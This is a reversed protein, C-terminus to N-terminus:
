KRHRRKIRQVGDAKFAYAEKDALKRNEADEPDAKEILSEDVYTKVPAFNMLIYNNALQEPTVYVKRLRQGCVTDSYESPKLGIKNGGESIEVVRFWRRGKKRVVTDYLMVKREM